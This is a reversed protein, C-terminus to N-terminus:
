KKEGANTTENMKGSKLIERIIDDVFSAEEELDKETIYFDTELSFSKIETDCRAVAKRVGDREDTTFDIIKWFLLKSPDNLSSKTVFVRGLLDQEKQTLMM